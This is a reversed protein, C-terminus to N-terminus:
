SSRAAVFVDVIKDLQQQIDDLYMMRKCASDNFLCRSEVWCTELAIWGMEIAVTNSFFRANM